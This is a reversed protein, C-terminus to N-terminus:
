RPRVGKGSSVSSRLEGMEEEEADKHVVSARPSQPPSQKPSSSSSRAAVASRRRLSPSGTTQRTLSIDTTSASASAPTHDQKQELYKTLSNWADQILPLRDAEPIENLCEVARKVHAQITSPSPGDVM